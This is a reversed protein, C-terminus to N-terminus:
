VIGPVNRVPAVVPRGDQGRRVEVRAAYVQSIMEATLVSEPPGSASVLGQSLLVLTDAYQGAITLDHLTSVVTLGASGRLGDVLELVQQEHGIDLMSTPEDLLLVSPETALARALVVRQREGGSMQALRRGAFRAVDLREMAAHAALCDRGGAIGLYGLHPTRGLMVYDGVTMDPPLVPEQPVYAMMRARRRGRMSRADAGDLSVTGRYALLGAIARLATSKGAGNPGILALWGGSAAAFSVGRLVPAGDLHVTLDRVSVGPIAAPGPASTGPTMDRGDAHSAAGLHVSAVRDARHRRRDPLESPSVVTRALTDALVLFGAGGLLSLPLVTSYSPGAVRRAVHPVIIGVFGILGSIAVASAAALACAGIVTARVAAPRIGLSRAEEDGVSLVDLYRAHLMIVTVSVAAYPAIETVQPWSAGALSGLLWEYVQQIVQTSQQLVFTQAAALFLGVAIGALLLTAPGNSIGVSAGRGPRAGVVGALSAIGVGALSGTFAAVPVVGPGLGGLYVIAITAGLGAGASAGLMGSDVLPNRFVGQYGAGTVALLGGVLAGAVIRPLRIQFLVATDVQNLGTSLHLLPIKDLLAAAVNVPNLDAAGVFASLLVAAILFIAATGLAIAKRM